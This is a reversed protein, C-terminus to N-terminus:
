AACAVELHHFTEDAELNLPGVDQLIKKRANGAEGGEDSKIKYLKRAKSTQGFHRIVGFDHDHSKCGEEDTERHPSWHKDQPTSITPKLVPSSFDLITGGRFL